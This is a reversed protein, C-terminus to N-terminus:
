AFLARRVLNVGATMLVLLTAKMFVSQDIRDQIIRGLRMGVIAAPVLIASFILTHLNLIGTSLHSFTLALAGIGYIVGQTRIHEKKDIEMVTLYAVTPPGWVASLGGVFGALAGIAAHSVKSEKQVPIRRGTLQLLSFGIVM